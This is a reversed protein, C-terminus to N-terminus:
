GPNPSSILVPIPMKHQPRSQRRFGALIEPHSQIVGTRALRQAIQGLYEGTESYQQYPLVEAVPVAIYAYKWIDKDLIASDWAVIDIDITRPAYKDMSRVRGLQEELPRLVREKLKRPDLATNILVASNLFNPGEGGIPPTEWVGSVDEIPFIRRLLRLAHPINKEAEINSGLLLCVKHGARKM